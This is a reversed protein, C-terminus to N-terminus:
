QVALLATNAAVSGQIVAVPQDGSTLGTPVTLEIQYLGVAGPMLAAFVIDAPQGGITVTPQVVVAAMPDSPAAAGSPVPPDTAGMGVLTLIIMEGQTAPSDPTVPSFDAAHQAILRGGSAAVGPQVPALTLSDPLTYGGNTGIVISYDTNPQLEAPIQVTLQGDSLSYLPAALAGILVSTGSFQTPLPIVGTDAQAPALSSGYVNAMTGPALPAGAVPNLGNLVGNPMLVPVKNTTVSGTMNRVTSALNPAAARATVTMSTSIKGPSWTASYLGAVPDTLQMTLAPDGNSFTTVVQGNLVPNGCNDALQMELSSPWGAPAAFSNALGSPALVLQAPTCGAAARRKTSATVTTPPQVVLTISTSRILTSSFAFTVDGTYVGPALGAPNVTVNVTAPAQTSTSGSSPVASLWTGGDATNASAQFPTPASSSILIGVPQAPSAAAGSTAAFFLGAPNPEPDATAGAGAVNLVATLYQPSNLANPDSIRLLAYYAGPGLAAVNPSLQIPSATGQMSQGLSTGLQLWESGSLIDAQWNVAGDGLNLVQVTQTEASGNGARAEFHVGSQSLGIVPGTTRVLVSVPIDVAGAASDIHIAGRVPGAPLDQANVLVSLSVPANPATQGASPTVSLWPADSPLTVSFALPGGGGINRVLLEQQATALATASGAFRLFGPSVDLQPTGVVVTLTVTVVGQRGDSINVLIRSSYKGPQLGTQDVSVPIRAPTSGKLLLVLLWPPAATGTAGGDTQITFQLGAGASVAASFSQPAPADGGAQASFDLSTASLVAGPTFILTIPKVVTAKVSDTVRIAFSFAGFAQPTGSLIGTAPDLTLGPPLTGSDLAWTFPPSGGSVAFTVSYSTGTVGPPSSATTIALAPAVIMVLAKSTNNSASDQVTVTFNYTGATTPTGSLFGSSADLTIGPPLQSGPAVFWLYLPAGGTATLVVTLSSGATAAIPSTTTISLAPSIRLTFSKSATQAAPGQASDAVGITFAFQGAATPTGTLSGTSGLNLGAPLVGSTVSWSYPTLGGTAAFSLSYALGVAGNALPSPSTITLVTNSTGPPGVAVAIWPGPQGFAM